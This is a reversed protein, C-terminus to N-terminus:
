NWKGGKSNEAAIIKDFETKNLIVPEYNIDQMKLRRVFARLHNESAMKLYNYTNIIDPKDTQKIREELDAIDLEEIKGGVKLAESISQKGATVLENYYKQLLANTFLGPKDNNHAVPDSLKYNTILIKMRDMHTQESKRINGFPNSDWKVYLFEYVDRALKEEEMMYLIADKEQQTLSITQTFGAISLVITSLVMIFKKMVKLKVKYYLCEEM